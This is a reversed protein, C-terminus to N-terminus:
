RLSQEQRAAYPKVLSIPPQRCSTESKWDKRAWGGGISRIRAHIIDDCGARKVNQGHHDPDAANGHRGGHCERRDPAAVKTLVPQLGELGDLATKGPLSTGGDDQDAQGAEVHGPTQTKPITKAARIEPPHVGHDADPQNKGENEEDALGEDQVATEILPHACFGLDGKGPQLASM